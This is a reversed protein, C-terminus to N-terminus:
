AYVRILSGRIISAPEYSLWDFVFSVSLFLYFLSLSFSVAVIFTYEERACVKSLIAKHGPELEFIELMYKGRSM